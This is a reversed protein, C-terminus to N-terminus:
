EPADKPAEDKMSELTADKPAESEIIEEKM